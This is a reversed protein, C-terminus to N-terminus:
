QGYVRILAFAALSIVTSSTSILGMSFFFLTTGFRNSDLKAAFLLGVMLGIVSAVIVWILISEM